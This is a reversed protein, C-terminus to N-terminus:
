LVEGLGMLKILNLSADTDGAEIREAINEMARCLLSRLRHRQSDRLEELHQNFTARFGAHHQVWRTVTVRHVGATEAAKTHTAGTLLAAIALEQSPSVHLLRDRNTVTM